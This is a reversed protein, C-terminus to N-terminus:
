PITDILPEPEYELETSISAVSCTSFAAAREATRRCEIEVLTLAKRCIGELFGRDLPVLSYWDKLLYSPLM